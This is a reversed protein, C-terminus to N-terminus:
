RIRASPVPYPLVAEIVSRIEADHDDSMNGVPFRMMEVRLFERARLVAGMDGVAPPLLTWLHNALNLLTQMCGALTTQADMNVTAKIRQDYHIIIHEDPAYTPTYVGAFHVDVGFRGAHMAWGLNYMWVPTPVGATVHVILEGSRIMRDYREDGHTFFMCAKMAADYTIGKLLGLSALGLWYDPGYPVVIQEGAEVRRTTQLHVVGVAEGHVTKKRMVGYACNSRLAMELRGLMSVGDLPNGERLADLAEAPAVGNALCANWPVRGLVRVTSRLGPLSHTYEESTHVIEVTGTSLAVVEGAAIVRRAQLGLGMVPGYDVVVCPATTRSTLSRALKEEVLAAMIRCNKKHHSWDLQQCEECCYQVLRCHSCSRLPGGEGDETWGTSM